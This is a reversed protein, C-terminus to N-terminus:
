EAEETEASVQALEFIRVLWHDSTFVEAFHSLSPRFPVQHQRVLDFGPHDSPRTPLDAFGKYSLKFLLSQDSFHSDRAMEHSHSLDDLYYGTAGGFVVLVYRAQLESMAGAASQEDAQFLRAVQSLHRPTAPDGGLVSHRAINAIQQGLGRWTVVRSDNATNHQLWSVAERLDDVWSFEESGQSVAPFVTTPQYVTPHTAASFAYVLFFGAIAAMGALVAVNIEKSIPKSVTKKAPEEQNKLYTKFTSSLGLSSVIAAVPFFVSAFHGSISALLLAMAAYAIFFVNVDTKKRFCLFVGAPFLFLVLHLDRFFTLWSSGNGSTFQALFVSFAPSPVLVGLAAAGVFVIASVLGISTIANHLKLHQELQLLVFVAFSPFFELNLFPLFGGAPLLVNLVNGVIFFV